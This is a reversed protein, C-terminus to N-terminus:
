GDTSKPLEMKPGMAPLLQLPIKNRNQLHANAGHKKLLLEVTHGGQCGAAAIGIRKIGSDGCRGRGSCRPISYPTNHDNDQVNVESNLNLDKFYRWLVSRLV